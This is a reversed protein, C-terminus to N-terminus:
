LIEDAVKKLDETIKWSQHFKEATKGNIILKEPVVNSVSFQIPKKGSLIEAAMSGISQGVEHYNAGIGFLAGIQPHDTNNTFVPINGENGAKVVMSAAIEVMNDGGIWLAEVGMSVLAKAAEYVGTSNDVINEVLKIKMSDCVQRALLVCAESCTESRCWVVGVKKLKPNLQAAVVFARRVPQFTGAGALWQPRKSQNNRDIGVGSAFPNTVAGFLHIVKGQKNANAMIQLAPTSATIVMDYKRNIIESAITYATPLDNEANYRTISIKEGDRYGKAALGDIYGQEVDDLTKRSSLKFLAVRKKVEVSENVRRKNDSMILIFSIATILLLAPWLKKFAYVM